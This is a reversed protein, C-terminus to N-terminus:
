HMAGAALLVASPPALACAFPIGRSRFSGRDPGALAFAWMAFLLASSGLLAVGIDQPGLWLGLASLLKGDGAGLWGALYATFGLVLCAGGCALGGLVTARAEPAAAVAVIWAGVLVAVVWNPVRRYRWDSLAAFVTLGAALWPVALAM